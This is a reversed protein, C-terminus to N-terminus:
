DMTGITYSKSLNWQIDLFNENASLESHYVQKRILVFSELTYVQVFLKFLKMNSDLCDRLYWTKQVKPSMNAYPTVTTKPFLTVRYREM